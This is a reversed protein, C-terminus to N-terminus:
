VHDGGPVRASWLTMLRAAPLRHFIWTKAEAPALLRVIRVDHFERALEARLGSPWFWRERVSGRIFQQVEQRIEMFTDPDLYDYVIDGNKLTVKLRLSDDGDVLDHGLYEVTSGKKRYDVLPGDFDADLLVNRLSDEGMLKPDKRGSFPQIQWGTAGDYADVQTMGQMSLTERVLDPRVNEQDVAAIRGRNGRVKGTMRINKIAQIKEMGGRAQINKAILEDATQAHCLVSFGCIALAVIVGHRMSCVRTSTRDAHANM